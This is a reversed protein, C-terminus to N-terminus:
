MCTSTGARRKAPEPKRAVSRAGIPLDPPLVEAFAPGDLPNRTRVLARDSAAAQFLVATREVERSVLPIFFDESWPLPLEFSM